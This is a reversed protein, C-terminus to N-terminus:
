DIVALKRIVGTADKIEICGSISGSGSTVRGFSVYGNGKPIIYINANDGPSNARIYAEGFTNGEIIIFASASNENYPVVLAGGNKGGIKTQGDPTVFISSREEGDSDWQCGIVLPYTPGGSSGAHIQFKGLTYAGLTLNEEFGAGSVKQLRVVSAIDDVTTKILYSVEGQENPVTLLKITNNEPLAAARYAKGNIFVAYEDKDTRVFPDGSIRTLVDGSVFGVGSMIVGTTQYPKEETALFSVATSNVETVHVVTDSVNVSVRYTLGAWYIRSLLMTPTFKEGSVWEVRDTGAITRLRGSVSSPQVSFEISSGFESPQMTTWSGNDEPFMVNGAVGDAPEAGGIQLGLLGHGSSGFRYKSKYQRVEGVGHSVSGDQHHRHIVAGLMKGVGIINVPEEFIFVRGACDIDSPIGYDGPPVLVWKSAPTSIHAQEFGDGFDKVSVFQSNFDHQTRAVSGIYPQKVTILADGQGDESSALELLVDAASGNEPPLSVPQGDNNFGLIKNARLAASPIAEVYSEPVRLTRGLNINGVQDVYKKTTADQSEIPDGLNEIRYGKANFPGGLLPRTLALGLYIFAQQIAMWLRDFDKNVTDALLDGNDQYDTLRYTPVARELMVTVGNAPSTLFTVEGGDVNGVGSITYGSTIVSGNLSVALDGDNLLYFEYPFVTTLGNATHINYPTQNPVSM